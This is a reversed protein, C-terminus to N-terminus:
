DDRDFTKEDVARIWRDHKCELQKMQGIHAIDMLKKLIDCQQQLHVKMVEWEEKRHKELMESWQKTQIAVLEKVAPDNVLDNRNM